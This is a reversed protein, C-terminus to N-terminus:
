AIELELVRDLRFSKVGEWTKLIVQEGKVGIVEGNLRRESDHALIERETEDLRQVHKEEGLKRFTVKLKQGLKIEM